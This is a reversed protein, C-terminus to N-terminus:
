NASDECEIRAKVKNGMENRGSAPLPPRRFNAALQRFLPPLEVPPFGVVAALPPAAFEATLESTRSVCSIAIVRTFSSRIM